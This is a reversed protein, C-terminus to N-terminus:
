HDEWGQLGTHNRIPQGAARRRISRMIATFEERRDLPIAMSISKGIMDQASYGYISEAAPNWSVVVGDLTTAIIADNSSTVIFALRDSAEEGQRRAGDTREAVWGTWVTLSALLMVTFVTM